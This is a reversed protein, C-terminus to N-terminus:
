SKGRKLANSMHSLKTTLLVIVTTIIIAYIYKAILSAEEPFFVAFTSQIADNWALGAVLGLGAASLTTMKEVIELRLSKPQEESM